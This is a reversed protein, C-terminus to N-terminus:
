DSKILKMLSELFFFLENKVHFRRITCGSVFWNKISKFISRFFYYRWEEYPMNEYLMNEFNILNDSVRCLVVRCTKWFCIWFGASCRHHLNSINSQTRSVGRYRIKHFTIRFCKTFNVSFCKCHHELKLLTVPSWKVQKKILIKQFNWFM